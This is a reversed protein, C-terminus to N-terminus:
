SVKSSHTLALSHRSLLLQSVELLTNFHTSMDYSVLPLKRAFSETVSINGHPTESIGLAETHLDSM